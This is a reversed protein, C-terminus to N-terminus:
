RLNWLQRFALCIIAFGFCIVIAGVLQLASSPDIFSSDYDYQLKVLCNYTENKNPLSNCINVAIDEKTSM